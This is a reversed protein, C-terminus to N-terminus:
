LFNDNNDTSWSTKFVQNSWHSFTPCSPLKVMLSRLRLKSFVCVFGKSTNSFLDSLEKRRFVSRWGKKQCNVNKERKWRFLRQYLYFILKCNKLSAAMVIVWADRTRSAQLSGKADFLATGQLQKYMYKKESITINACLHPRKLFCGEIMEQVWVFIGKLCKGFGAIM